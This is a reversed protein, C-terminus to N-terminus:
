IDVCEFVADDAPHEFPLGRLWANWGLYPGDAASPNLRCPPVEEPKLVPQVDFDLDPGVFSRTLEVSRAFRPGM